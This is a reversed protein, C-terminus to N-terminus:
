AANEESDNSAVEEHSPECENMPLSRVNFRNRFYSIPNLRLACPPRPSRLSRLQAVDFTLSRTFCHAFQSSLTEINKTRVEHDRRDRHHFVLQHEIFADSKEMRVAPIRLKVRM